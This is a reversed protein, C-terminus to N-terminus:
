RKEARKVEDGASWIRYRVEYEKPVYIVIPLRSNYRLMTKESPRLAIFQETAPERCAMMTSPGVHIDRVELYSYGWGKLTVSHVKGVLSRINCNALMKKGIILEVKHEDEKDRKPVEIIYREFGRQPQPFMHARAKDAEAAQLSIGGLLFALLFIIIKVM